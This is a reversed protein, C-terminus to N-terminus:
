AAHSEAADSIVAHIQDADKATRLRDLTGPQRVLRSIRALAKLRDGAAHEPSLLLFMLDVPEGDLADFEIPQVARAFLGVTAKVQVLRIHPIAIGHGFGTSCLRERQLLMDFIMRQDLGTLEAARLAMEQLAQKKSTAALAPMIGDRVILDGLNM